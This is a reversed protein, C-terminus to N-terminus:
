VTIKRWCVSPLAANPVRTEDLHISTVLDVGLLLCGGLGGHRAQKPIIQDRYEGAISRCSGCGAVIFPVNFPCRLCIDRRAAAEEPKVYEFKTGSQKSKIMRGFWLLIHTKLTMPPKAPSAMPQPNNVPLRRNDGPPRCLSPYRECAQDMVESETTEPNKGQRERYSKVKEIVGPWSTARHLSGDTERFIFGSSPRISVNIRQM